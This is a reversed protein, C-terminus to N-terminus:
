CTPRHSPPVRPPKLRGQRTDRKTGSRQNRDGIGSGRDRIRIGGSGLDGDRDRTRAGPCTICRGKGM